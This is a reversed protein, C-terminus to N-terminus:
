TEGRLEVGVLARELDLTLADEFSGPHADAGRVLDGFGPAQEHPAESRPRHEDGSVGVAFEVRHQVGATMAAGFEGFGVAVDGSGDAAGVVAPGVGGVSSEAGGRQEILNWTGVGGGVEVQHRHADGGPSRQEEGAEVGGGRRELGPDAVEVVTHAAVPEVVPLHAVLLAEVDVGVPLEDALVELLIVVEAPHVRLEGLDGPDGVVVAVLPGAHVASLGGGRHRTILAVVPELERGSGIEVCRVRHASAKDGEERVDDEGNQGVVDPEHAEVGDGGAEGPLGARHEGGSRDLLAGVVRGTVEPERDVGLVDVDDLAGLAAEGVAGDRGAREAWAELLGEVAEV